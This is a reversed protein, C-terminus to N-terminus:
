EDEFSFRARYAAIFTKARKSTPGPVWRAGYDHLRQSAEHSLGVHATLVARTEDRDIEFGDVRGTEYFALIGRDTDLGNLFPIARESLCTTIATFAAQFSDGENSSWWRDNVGLFEGIRYRIPCKWDLPMRSVDEGRFGMLAKPTVGFNVTFRVEDTDSYRSKQLGIVQWCQETERGFRQGSRRFGHPRLFRNLDSLLRNFASDASTPV